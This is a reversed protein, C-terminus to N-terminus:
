GFLLGFAEEIRGVPKVDISYRSFDIKKGKGGTPM